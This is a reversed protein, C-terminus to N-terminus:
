QITNLVMSVNHLRMAQVINQTGSSYVVYFYVLRNRVYARLELRSWLQNAADTPKAHTKTKKM